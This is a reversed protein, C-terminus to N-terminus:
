YNLEELSVGAEILYEVIEDQSVSSTMDAAYYSSGDPTARDTLLTTTAIITALCAASALVAITIKNKRRHESMETRIAINVRENMTEFYGAPVKFPIKKLSERKLIDKNNQINKKTLTPEIMNESSNKGDNKDTGNKKM